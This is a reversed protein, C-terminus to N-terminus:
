SMYGFEAKPRASNHLRLEYEICSALAAAHAASALIRLRAHTAGTGYRSAAALKCVDCMVHTVMKSMITYCAAGCVPVTRASGLGRPFGNTVGDDVEGLHVIMSCMSYM